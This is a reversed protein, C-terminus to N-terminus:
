ALCSLAEDIRAITREKGYAVILEFPSPSKEQGSLAVRLPWLTDGNGWGKNQIWARLDADVAQLSAFDKEDRESLFQRLGTLREIAEEKTQKKWPIMAPDVELTEKFLFGVLLSLEAPVALRDRVLLCARDVFANDDSLAALFPRCVSLYEEVPLQKLYHTNLWNLKDVNFIAGAKNVKSIDFATILEERSYVEQSDSPNWGLLALFNFLADPLYGKKLYDEAAVDGQRKSLKSRDANLLLPLHAYSPATWGFCQFIFLHKPLSSLWEEGRIVHSIEMDHDDCTAALHYTPFGDSKILVQDDIQNWAFEVSGRIMDECVISGETPVKLRIVHEEGATIRKATEERSLSRCKKDYMMPQKTAKQQESLEALREKTCFCHYAFGKEILAQAYALHKDKRKSQIYPAFPGVEQMEGNVVKVGEDPTISMQELVRYLSEFAGEVFRTQDTDEVRLVFTGNHHRVFLWNDVARKLNGVHVFGTPSPAFRVRVASSPKTM